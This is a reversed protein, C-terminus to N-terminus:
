DHSALRACGTSDAVGAVFATKGRLDFPSSMTPQAAARAPVRTQPLASPVTFGGVVGSCVLILLCRSM